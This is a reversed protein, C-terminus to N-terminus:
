AYRIGRKKGETQTCNDCVVENFHFNNVENFFLKCVDCQIM